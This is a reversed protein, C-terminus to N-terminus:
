EAFLGVVASLLSFAMDLITCPASGDLGKGSGFRYSLLFPDLGM